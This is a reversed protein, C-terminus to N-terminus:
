CLSPFYDYPITRSIRRQTKGRLFALQYYHLGSPGHVARAYDDLECWPDIVPVPSPRRIVYFHIPHVYSPSYTFLLSQQTIHNHLFKITFGIATFAKPGTTWM